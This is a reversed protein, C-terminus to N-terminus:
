WRSSGPPPGARGSSASGAGSTTRNVAQTPDINPESSPLRAAPAASTWSAPRAPAPTRVGAPRAPITACAASCPCGSHAAADRDHGRDLPGGRRQERSQGPWAPDGADHQVRRAARLRQAHGCVQLMERRQERVLDDYESGPAAAAEGSVPAQQVGLEHGRGGGSTASSESRASSAAWGCSVMKRDTLRVQSIPIVRAVARMRGASAQTAPSRWGSLQQDRRRGPSAGTTYPTPSELRVPTLGM